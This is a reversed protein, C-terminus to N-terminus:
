LTLADFLKAVLVTALRDALLDSSLESDAVLVVWTTLSTCPATLKSEAVAFFMATSPDVM